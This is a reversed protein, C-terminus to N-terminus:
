RGELESLKRGTKCIEWIRGESRGAKQRYREPHQDGIRALQRGIWQVSRVNNKERSSLPSSEAILEVRLDSASGSWFSSDPGFLVREIADMLAVEPSLDFLIRKIDPHQFHRIGFRGYMEDPIKYENLLWWMFAPLQSELAAGFADQEQPTRVPMPMPNSEDQPKRCHLILIKDVIDDTLQPLVLLKEPEDNVCMILRRYLHIDLAEVHKGRVHFTEDAVIKKIKSAVEDRMKADTQSQDDDVCWCECRLFEGNFNDKGSLYNYPQCERGGLSLKILKKLLSKGCGKTGALTLCMGMNKKYGHILCNLSHQWWGFLFDRQDIGDEGCPGLQQDIVALVIDIAGKVPVPIEFSRTVLISMGNNRILGKKYGALPGAFAVACNLSIHLLLLDLDSMKSKDDRVANVGCRKLYDGFLKEKRGRWEGGADQMWYLGQSEDFFVRDTLGLTQMMTRGVFAASAERGEDINENKTPDFDSM